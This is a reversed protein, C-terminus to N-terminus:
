GIVKRVCQERRVQDLWWLAVGCADTAHNGEGSTRYEQIAGLRAQVITARCYKDMKGRAIGTIDRMWTLPKVFHVPVPLQELAGLLRNMDWANDAHLYARKALGQTGAQPTFPYSVRAAPLRASEPTYDEVVVVECRFQILLQRCHQMILHRKMAHAKCHRTTFTGYELLEADGSAPLSLIGWGLNETGPDIGLCIM